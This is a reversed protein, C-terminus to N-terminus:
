VLTAFASEIWLQLLDASEITTTTAEGCRHRVVAFSSSRHMSHHATRRGTIMTFLCRNSTPALTRNTSTISLRTSLSPRPSPCSSIPEPPLHLVCWPQLRLDSVALFCTERESGGM